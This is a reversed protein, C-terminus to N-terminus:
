ILKLYHLHLEGGAAQKATRNKHKSEHERGRLLVFKLVLVFDVKALHLGPHVVGHSQADWVPLSNKDNAQDPHNEL